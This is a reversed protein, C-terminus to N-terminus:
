QEVHASPGTERAKQVYEHYKLCCMFQPLGPLMAAVFCTSKNIPCDHSAFSLPANLMVCLDLSIMIFTRVQLPSKQSSHLGGQQSGVLTYFRDTANLTIAKRYFICRLTSSKSILIFLFQKLQQFIFKNLVNLGYGIFSSCDFGLFTVLISGNM